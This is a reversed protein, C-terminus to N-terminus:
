GDDNFEEVVIQLPNYLYGSAFPLKYALADNGYGLLVYIAN